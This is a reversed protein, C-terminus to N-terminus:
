PGVIPGSLHARAAPLLLVGAVIVMWALSRFVRACVVLVFIAGAGLAVVLCFREPVTPPLTQTTAEIEAGDVLL